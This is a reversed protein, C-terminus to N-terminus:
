RVTPPDVSRSPYQSTSPEDSSRLRVSHRYTARFPVAAHDIGSSRTVGQVGFQQRAFGRLAERTRFVATGSVEQTTVSPFHREMATGGTETSFASAIMARQLFRGVEELHSESYTVAVLRGGPRLVRVIERLGRDLDPLHYLVRNALVVDFVDDLFPLLEVDAVSAAIRRGNTLAAMRESLDVAVFQGRVADQVRESFDGTGCGVELVRAPDLHVVEALTVDEVLPGDLEAWTSLRRALFGIRPRTSAAFSQRTM